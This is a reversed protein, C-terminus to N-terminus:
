VSGGFRGRVDAEERLAVAGEGAGEVEVAVLLGMERIRGVPEVAGLAAVAAEATAHTVPAEPPLIVQVLM